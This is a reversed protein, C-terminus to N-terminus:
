NLIKKLDSLTLTKKKNRHVMSHCNPCLVIMDKKPNISMSKGIQSVPKIHHVHIFNKGIKGYCKEFNFRCAMCTYGHFKIADKRNKPKREYYATYRYKRKGEMSNSEFDGSLDPLIATLPKKTLIRVNALINKYTSEDIVRVGDRWYNNKRNEPIIELFNGATTKALVPNEFSQYNLIECFYDNKNSLPDPASEGIEAVGFYHPKPTLRKELFSKDRITGKYYIVKSGHSLYKLYRKPFHYLEGTVDDWESEDNETIICYKTNIM